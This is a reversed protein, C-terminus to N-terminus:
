LDVGVLVPETALDVGFTKRVGGAVERALALLSATTANGPNVLALTHKASIRADQAGAGPQYGKGFGAREILWAAPVKVLGPEAAFRPIQVGPGCVGAVARELDAFQQLDLVPNTFFSGASRTDPDAADLVMGKGRRLALVAPRVRALPAREGEAVGLARALEAYRVPASLASRQLRFTVALVIFRGTVPGAHGFPAGGPGPQSSPPGGPARSPRASSPHGPALQTARKFASTRYGFGCDAHSLETVARRARDYARVTVLTQAVEQGYAGVNQIPTAGARGPIGSLCELGALDDGVTQAVIADWDEGAAVTLRVTGPDQPEHRVGRGAVRVVTGPFGEDAIVLNSGGGLVLLPEGQEDASRVAAVLEAETAATVLRGAPGGLGLTTFAALPVGATRAM